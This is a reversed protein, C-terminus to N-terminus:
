QKIWQQVRKEVVNWNINDWLVALYEKRDIGFDIMYAHEYADFVLIPITLVPVKDNHSDLLYNHIKQDDINYCTLAWGRASLATAMLDDKFKQISSFNKLIIEQTLIGISTGTGINEFYLEHLLAANRSFTEALKLGRFASYTINNGQSRDVSKLGHHIENRKKVYGEYLKKHDNIQKSSFKKEGMEIVFERAIYPDSTPMELSDQLVDRYAIVGYLSVFIVIICVMYIFSKKYFNM